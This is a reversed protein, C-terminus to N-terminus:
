RGSVLVGPVEGQAILTGQANRTQGHQCWGLLVNREDYVKTVGMHTNTRYIIAGKSDRIIQQSM